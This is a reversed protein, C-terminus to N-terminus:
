KMERKKRTKKGSDRERERERGERVVMREITNKLHTCSIFLTSMSREESAEGDTPEPLCIQGM